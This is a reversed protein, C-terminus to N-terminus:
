KHYIFVELRLRHSGPYALVAARSVRRDSANVNLSRLAGNLMSRGYSPGVNAIIQTM